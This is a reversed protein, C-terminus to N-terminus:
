PESSPPDAPLARVMGGRQEEADFPPLAPRCFIELVMRELEETVSGKRVTKNIFDQAHPAKARISAQQSAHACDGYV